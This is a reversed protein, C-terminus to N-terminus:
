DFARPDLGVSELVDWQRNVQLVSLIVAEVVLKTWEGPIRDALVGVSIWGSLM